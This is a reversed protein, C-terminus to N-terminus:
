KKNGKFIDSVAVIGRLLVFIGILALGKVFGAPKRAPGFIRRWVGVTYSIPTGVIMLALGTRNNRTAMWNAWPTAIKEAWGRSWAIQAQKRQELDKIWLMMQPGEGSMWDVVIEAWARYGNYIDPYNKVLETGFEQDARYIEESLLGLEYLKTCIIKKNHVIFGEVIYTNDGDLMLNYIVYDEPRSEAEISTVVETGTRKILTTGIEIKKLKGVFEKEVAWSNPNFAAWGDTTLLPHEESVFAWTDNFKYMLRDGIAPTEIGLVVNYNGTQNMVRDGIVIDRIKKFTGDFMTVLSNPDFCTYEPQQPIDVPGGGGGGGGGVITYTISTIGAPVTWTYTGPKNYELNGSSPFVKQWTGNVKNYVSTIDKWNGSVMVKPVLVERWQVNKAITTGKGILTGSTTFTHTITSSTDTLPEITIRGGTFYPEGTVSTYTIVATGSSNPSNKTSTESFGTPYSSAGYSGSYGGNDLSGDEGDPGTNGGKGGPNGGGGGGGGGGDGGGKNAGAGGRTTGNSQFGQTPLGLPGNGGGGGGPGGAAVLIVEANLKVVTAAGGGGGEGSVGRQGALGGQGGSYDGNSGAPGGSGSNVNNAGNGGGGGIDITLTDTLGVDTVGIVKKGPYGKYGATRADSGGTGGSGGEVSLEISVSTDTKVSPSNVYIGRKTIM